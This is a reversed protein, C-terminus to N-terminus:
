NRNKRRKARRLKRAAKKREQKIRKYELENAYAKEQEELRIRREQPTEPPETYDVSIGGTVVIGLVAQTELPVLLSDIKKAEKSITIKKTEFGVYSFVLTEGIEANIEYHGDFDTQTGRSTGNVIVNAGPLPLGSEDTVTGSVEFPKAKDETEVEVESAIMGVTRRVTITKEEEQPLECIPTILEINIAESKVGRKDEYLRFGEKEFVLTERDLSVIKFAGKRNTWETKGSEKVTIKVNRLPNGETDTVVGTTTIQIRDGSRSGIGLSIYSEPSKSNETSTASHAMMSIPLLLSAAWPALSFGEKRELQLKRDLQSARFRGCLKTNHELHKIIQEDSQSTFDVVEKTCQDCFRGKETPTMENWDEHCPEPISITIAKKM